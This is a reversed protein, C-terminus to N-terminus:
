PEGVGNPERAESREMEVEEEEEWVVPSRNPELPGLARWASMARWAFVDEETARRPAPGARDPPSTSIFTRKAAWRLAPLRTPSSTSPRGM